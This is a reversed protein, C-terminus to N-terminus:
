LVLAKDKFILHWASCLLGSDEYTRSKKYQEASIGMTTRARDSEQNKLWIITYNNFSGSFLSRM